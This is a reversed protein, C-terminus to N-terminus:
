VSYITPPTLHTYSVPYLWDTDAMLKPDIDSVGLQNAVGLYTNMSREGDPSVLIMSRGTEDVSDISVMPTDFDAGQARIDHAFIRGLQDDKVKGIFATKIGVSAIGAITNAASGGSIEVGANMATYIENARSTDILQMIGKEIGKASLFEDSCKALVDVIANGIGVVKYSKNM